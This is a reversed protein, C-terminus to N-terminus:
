AAGQPKRAAFGHLGLPFPAEGYANVRKFEFGSASLEAGIQEPPVLLLRHTERDRRFCNGSRRFITIQRTLEDGEVSAETLVAWDNREVFTRSLPSAERDPGAVDLIFLGGDKLAAFVNAFLAARVAGGNRDDFAYNLVEGVACVAVCCPIQADIFSAVHFTAGPVRKRAIEIFAESLDFGIVSYGARSLARATVGSGCGLDVVTGSKLEIQRLSAVLLEAADSAMQMFGDDHIHALDSRYPKMQETPFTGYFSKSSM